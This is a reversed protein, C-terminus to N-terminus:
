GTTNFGNSACICCLMHMSEQSVSASRLEGTTRHMQQVAPPMMYFTYKWSHPGCVTLCLLWSSSLVHWVADGNSKRAKRKDRQQTCCSKGPCSRGFQFSWAFGGMDGELRSIKHVITYTHSMLTHSTRHVLGPRVCRARLIRTTFFFKWWWISSCYTSKLFNWVCFDTVVLVAFISLLVGSRLELFAHDVGPTFCRMIFLMLVRGWGGAPFVHLCPHLGGDLCPGSISTISWM